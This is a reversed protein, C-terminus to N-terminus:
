GQTVPRCGAVRNPVVDAICSVANTKRVARDKPTTNIKKSSSHQTDELGLGKVLMSQIWLVILAFGTERWRGRLWADLIAEVGSEVVKLM